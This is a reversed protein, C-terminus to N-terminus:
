EWAYPLHEHTSAIIHPGNIFGRGPLERRTISSDPIVMTSRDSDAPLMKALQCHVARACRWLWKSWPHLKRRTLTEPSRHPSSAEFPWRGDEQHRGPEARDYREPVGGRGRADPFQAGRESFIEAMYDTLFGYGAAYNEPRIKPMEWGPLYAHIRDLFAADQLETPLVEFLHRYRSEPERRAVDTDINRRAGSFM